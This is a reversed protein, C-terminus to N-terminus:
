PTVQTPAALVADTELFVMADIAGDYTRAIAKGTFSCVAYDEEAHEVSIFGRVKYFERYAGAVDGTDAEPKVMLNFYAPVTDKTNKITTIENPTTGDTSATSGNIADILDVKMIANTFTIDYGQFEQKTALLVGDGRAEKEEIIASATFSKIGEVDVQTSTTYTDSTDATIVGVKADALGYFITKDLAM